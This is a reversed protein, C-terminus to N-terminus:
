GDIGHDVLSNKAAAQLSDLASNFEASPVIFEAVSSPSGRLFETKLKEIAAAIKTGRTELFDAEAKADLYADVVGRDIAYRHRLNPLKRIGINVFHQTADRQDYDDDIPALPCYRKVSRSRHLIRQPEADSTSLEERYIARVRTGRAVSLVLCLDDVAANLEVPDLQQDVRVILEALIGHSKTTIVRTHESSANPTPVIMGQLQMGSVVLPIPIGLVHHKRGQRNVTVRQTGVFHFNVLGFRYEAVPGAQPFSVLLDRLDYAGYTGQNQTEPLYNTSFGIDAVLSVGADATGSFRVPEYAEGGGWSMMFRETAAVDTSSTLLLTDGNFLQAADFTVAQTESNAFFLTGRGHYRGLLQGYASLRLTAQEELELEAQLWDDVDNGHAEGRAVFLEYARSAIADQRISSTRMSTRRTRKM